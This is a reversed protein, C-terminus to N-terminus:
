GKLKLRNRDKFGFDRIPLLYNSQKKFISEATRQSRGKKKGEIGEKTKLCM